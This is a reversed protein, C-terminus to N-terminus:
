KAAVLGVARAFRRVRPAGVNDSARCYATPPYDTSRELHLERCDLSKTQIMGDQDYLAAFKLILHM